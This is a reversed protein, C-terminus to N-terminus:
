AVDGMREFAVDAQVLELLAWFATLDRYLRNDHLEGQWIHLMPDGYERVAREFAEMDEADIREIYSASFPLPTM